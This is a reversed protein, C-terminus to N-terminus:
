IYFHRFREILNKFYFQFKNSDDFIIEKDTSLNTTLKLLTNKEETGKFRVSYTPYLHWAIPQDLSM